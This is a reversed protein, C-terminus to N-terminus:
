GITIVLRKDEYAGSIKCDPNLEIVETSIPVKVHISMPNEKKQHDKEYQYKYVLQLSQKGLKKIILNKKYM